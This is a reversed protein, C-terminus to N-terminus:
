LEEIAEVVLNLRVLYQVIELRHVALARDVQDVGRHDHVARARVDRRGENRRSDVGGEDAAPADGAAARHRENALREPPRVGLEAPLDPRPGAANETVLEPELGPPERLQTLDPHQQGDHRRREGFEDGATLQGHDCRQCAYKVREHRIVRIQQPIIDLQESVEVGIGVLESGDHPCVLQDAPLEYRVVERPLAPDLPKRGGKKRKHAAVEIGPRDEQAPQTALTPALQEAENLFLDGQRPDRRKESSAGFLKRMMVKLQEKVLDREAKTVRLEGRLEDREASWTAREDLLADREAILANFEDVTITRRERPM